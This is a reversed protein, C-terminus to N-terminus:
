YKKINSIILLEINIFLNVSLTIIVVIINYWNYYTQYKSRLRFIIQLKPYKVELNYKYKYKNIFYNGYKNFLFSIIM